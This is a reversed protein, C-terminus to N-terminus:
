IEALFCTVHKSASTLGLMRTGHLRPLTLRGDISPLLSRNFPLICDRIKSSIHTAILSFSVIAWRRHYTLQSRRCRMSALVNAHWHVSYTIISHFYIHTYDDM